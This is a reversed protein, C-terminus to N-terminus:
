TVPFDFGAITDNVLQIAKRTDNANPEGISSNAVLSLVEASAETVEAPAEQESTDESIINSLLQKNLEAIEESLETIYETQSANVTRLEEVEVLLKDYNAVMENAMLSNMFIAVNDEEIYHCETNLTRVGCLLIGLKVGLNLYAPPVTFKSPPPTRTNNKAGLGKISENVYRYVAKLYNNLLTYQVYEGQIDNQSIQYIPDFTDWIQGNGYPTLSFTWVDDSRLQIIVTNLISDSKATVSLRFRTPSDIIFEIGPIGTFEAILTEVFSRFNVEVQITKKM